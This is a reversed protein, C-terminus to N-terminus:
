GDSSYEELLNDFDVPCTLASVLFIALPNIDINIGKRGLMIAEIATVGSGGFPDLIVDNPKTFHKIYQQVVDWSQKTFYGHVGFHRKTARKRVKLLPKPLPLDVYSFHEYKNTLSKEINIKKETFRDPSLLNEMVEWHKDFESLPFYLLPEKRDRDFAVFERGNCLAFIQVNIDPHIAYSYVQEIHEGSLFM